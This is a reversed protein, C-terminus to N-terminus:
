KMGIKVADIFEKPQLGYNFMGSWKGQPNILFISATHILQYDKGSSEDREGYVGFLSQLKRLSDIKGSAGIFEKNFSHTYADLTKANDREPDLSVFAVQLNPYAKKLEPYVRNLVGLSAPCIESCHTFGFFVLTWHQSLEKVGFPKGDTTVLDFSKIDRPEPFLLGQKQSLIQKPRHSLNFVFLSTILAASVFIVAFIIKNISVVEKRENM